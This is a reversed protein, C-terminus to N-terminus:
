QQDATPGYTSPVAIGLLRLYVGLQARHHVSHNLVWTRMVQMKPMTFYVMDGNRMTWPKHMEEDTTTSLITTATELCKDFLALLDATTEAVKPTYDGKSFDLEDYVVTEKPWGYIEAVHKALAGLPMSKEHPKWDQNDMPVAALTLRTAVAEQQLEALMQQAITM